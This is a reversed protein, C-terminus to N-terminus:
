IWVPKSHRQKSMKGTPFWCSILFRDQKSPGTLLEVVWFLITTASSYESRKQRHIFATAPFSMIDLQKGFAGGM